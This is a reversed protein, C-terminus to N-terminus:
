APEGSSSSAEDYALRKILHRLPLQQDSLVLLTGTQSVSFPAGLALLIRQVHSPDMRPAGDNAPDTWLPVWSRPTTSLRTEAGVLGSFLGVFSLGLKM